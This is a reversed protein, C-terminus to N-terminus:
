YYIMILRTLHRPCTLSSQYLSTRPLKITRNLFFKLLQILPHVTSNHKRFGYQHSYLASTTELFNTLRVNVIKELLKSFAPLISIPRYNNVSNKDGSKFLPIVKAIKLQDPVIGQKLSENLIYSLPVAIEEITSKMLKTSIADHGCSTKPKMRRVRSVLEAPGTPTFFISCDSSYNLYDDFSIQSQQISKETNKGINTFYDNFINTIEESNEITVNNHQIVDPFASKNSTKGIVSRLLKWTEKSDNRCKNFIDEYYKKKQARLIKRFLSNYEKYREINEHCPKKLKKMYLKHKTVSSILLGKTMWLEKKIHKRSNKVRQLPFSFEFAQRYLVMFKTYAENVNSTNLVENFDTESLKSKFLELRDNGMNRIYKFQNVNENTDSLIIHFVGFHDAVEDTILVGSRTNVLIDNTYIHDILTATQHTVRTPKSIVPMFGHTLVSDVYLKTKDHTNYKLLDINFDGLLYATRNEDQITMMLGLITESFIDLDAKPATNPRYICGIIIPKSKPTLKIEVFLTECVHPIFVSLDTRINYQFNSNIFLGVGGHGDDNEDRINYLNKKKLEHYGDLQYTFDRPINFTETLGIIDFDSAMGIDSLLSVLGNWNAKLSRCNISFLSLRKQLNNSLNLFGDKDLYDCSIPLTTDTVCDEDETSM